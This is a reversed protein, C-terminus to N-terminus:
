KKPIKLGWKVYGKLYYNNNSGYCIVFNNVCCYLQIEESLHDLVAKSLLPGEPTDIFEMCTFANDERTFGKTPILYLAGTQLKENESNMFSQFNDHAGIRELTRDPKSSKLCPDDQWTKLTDKWKGRIANIKKICAKLILESRYQANTQNEMNFCLNKEKYKAGCLLILLYKQCRRGLSFTIAKSNAEAAVTIDLSEFFTNLIDDPLPMFSSDIYLPLSDYLCSMICHLFMDNPMSQKKKQQRVNQIYTYFRAPVKVNTVGEINKESSQVERLKTATKEVFIKEMDDMFVQMDNCKPKKLAAAEDTSEKRKRVVTAPLDEPWLATDSDNTDM